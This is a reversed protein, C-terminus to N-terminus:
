KPSVTAYHEAQINLGQTRSEKLGKIALSLNAETM